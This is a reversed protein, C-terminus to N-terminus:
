QVGAHGRKTGLFPFPRLAVAGLAARPLLSLSHGGPVVCKWSTELVDSGSGAYKRCIWGMKQTKRSIQGIELM